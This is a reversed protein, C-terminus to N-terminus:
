VEYKRRRKNKREAYMQKKAIYEKQMEIYKNIKGLNKVYITEILADDNWVEAKTGVSIMEKAKRASQTILLNRRKDCDYIVFTNM